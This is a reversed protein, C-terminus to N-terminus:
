RISLQKETETLFLNCQDKGPWVDYLIVECIQLM